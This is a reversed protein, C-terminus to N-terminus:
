KGFKRILKNWENQSVGSGATIERIKLDSKHWKIKNVMM